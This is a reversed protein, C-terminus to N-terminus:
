HDQPEYLHEPAKSTRFIAYQILLLSGQGAVFALAYWM